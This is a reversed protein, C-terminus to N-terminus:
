RESVVLRLGADYEELARLHGHRRDWAGDGLAAHIRERLHPDERRYHSYSGGIRDYRPGTPDSTAAM